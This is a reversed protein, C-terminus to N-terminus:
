EVVIATLEEREGTNLDIALVVGVDLCYYKNENVEPDLRTYDYTQLCGTFTGYPVDVSADLDLVEAEDEAECVYYEQRYTDGVQPDAKMIIGAKAGDVGAEWSGATTVIKGNKYEATDEGFYWVNGEVDQAYWDLTDEVLEGGDTASVTDHVVTCTVGLIDRTDSTVVVEVTNKGEAYTLTTGPILPYYPNDILAVFNAPNIEPDYTPDVTCDLEGESESETGGDDDGCNWACACIVLSLRLKM